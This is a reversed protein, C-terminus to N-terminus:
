EEADALTRVRTPVKPPEDGGSNRGKRGEGARSGDNRQGRKTHPRTQLQAPNTMRTGSSGLESMGNSEGRDDDEKSPDQIGAAKRLIATLNWLQWKERWIKRDVPELGAFGKGPYYRFLIPVLAGDTTEEYAGYVKLPMFLGSGIYTKPIGEVTVERNLVPFYIIPTDGKVSVVAVLSGSNKIVEGSTRNTMPTFQKTEKDRRMPTWPDNTDIHGWYIGAKDGGAADALLQCKQRFDKFAERSEKRAKQAELWLPQLAFFVLRNRSLRTKDNSEVWSYCLFNSLNDWDMGPSPRVKLIRLFRRSHDEEGKEKAKRGAERLETATEVTLLELYGDGVAAELATKIEKESTLDEYGTVRSFFRVTPDKELEVIESEASAKLVELETVADGTIGLRGFEALQNEIEPLGQRIGVLRDLRLGVSINWGAFRWYRIQKENMRILLDAAAEKAKEVDNDFEALLAAREGDLLRKYQSEVFAATRKQVAKKERALAKEADFVKKTEVATTIVAAAKDKTAGLQARLADLNFTGM